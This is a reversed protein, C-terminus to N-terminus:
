DLVAHGADVEVEPRPPHLLVVRRVGLQAARHVVLDHRPQGASMASRGDRARTTTTPPPTPPVLMAHWRARRPSVSTRSTSRASSVLPEVNWEAPSTPCSRPETVSVRM